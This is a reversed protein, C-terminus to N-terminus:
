KFVADHFSQDTQEGEGENYKGVDVTRRQEFLTIQKRGVGQCDSRDAAENKPDSRLVGQVGIRLVANFCLDEGM